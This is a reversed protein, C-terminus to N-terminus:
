PTWWNGSAVILSLIKISDNYYCDRNLASCKDWLLDVWEQAGPTSKDQSMAAVLYPVTFCLDSYGAAAEGKLTYGAMIKDPNNGTEERIWQNLKTLLEKERKDGSVLYDTGIRWPDRCANYGCNGDNESELFNKYAPEYSGSKNKLIFDPLLGTQNSYNMFIQNMIVYIKDTVQKWEKNKTVKYFVKLHGLLFDSSRTGTYYDSDSSSYGAWDGLQLTWDKRDVEYNMIDAIMDLAAQKYDIGKDSGWQKDALLLAYAIDLDGDTASDSDGDVMSGNEAGDILASGNDSQQWAMLHPGISSLHEKYYYYMGDFINKADSDYGAMMATTLMGYGHAESVTVAASKDPVAKTYKNGSYWIYYQAEESYPNRIVYADKWIDYFKGAAQDMEEQPVDPKLTREIYNVHQPFPYKAAAEEKEPATAEDKAAPLENDGSPLIQTVKDSSVNESTMGSSNSEQPVKEPSKQNEHLKEKSCGTLAFATLLFFLSVYKSSQWFQKM